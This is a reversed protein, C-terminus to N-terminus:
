EEGSMDIKTQKNKECQKRKKNTKGERSVKRKYQRNNREKEKYINQSYCRNKGRHLTKCLIKWRLSHHWLTEDVRHVPTVGVSLVSIWYNIVSNIFSAEVVKWGENELFVSICKGSVCWRRRGKKPKSAKEETQCMRWGKGLDKCPWIEYIKMDRWLSVM